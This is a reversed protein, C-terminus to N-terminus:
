LGRDKEAQLLGKMGASIAFGLEAAKRVLDDVEPLHTNKDMGWWIVPNEDPNEVFSDHKQLYFTQLPDDWGFVWKVDEYGAHDPNWTNAGEVQTPGQIVTHQSM